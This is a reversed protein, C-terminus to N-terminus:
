QYMGGNGNEKKQESAVAVENKQEKLKLLYDALAQLDKISPVEHESSGSMEKMIMASKKALAQRYTIIIQKTLKFIIAIIGFIFLAWDLWIM